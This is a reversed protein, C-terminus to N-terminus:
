EHQGGDATYAKVTGVQVLKLRSVLEAPLELEAAGSDVQAKCKIEQGQKGPPLFRNQWNRVKILVAFVGM